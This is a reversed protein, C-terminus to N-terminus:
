KCNSSMKAQKKKKKKEGRAIIDMKWLEGSISM